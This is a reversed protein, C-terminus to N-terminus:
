RFLRKIRGWTTARTPTVDPHVQGRIEGGPFSTTHINVYSSDNLIIRAQIATVAVVGALTGSTTGTGSLGVMVGAAENVSAPGHIHQATRTGLLDQYTISYTVQTQANNMIITGSGTGPTAVPTPRENAGNLSVTFGTDAWPAAIPGVVLLTATTFVISRRLRM